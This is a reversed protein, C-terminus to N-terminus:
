SGSKRDAQEVLQKYEESYRDFFPSLETLMKEADTETPRAQVEKIIQRFGRPHDVVPCPRRPDKNAARGQRLRQFYPSQLIELFSHDRINHTTFHMFVCAEADGKSNIHFYNNPSMCGGLVDGDNFFMGLLIPYQRRLEEMRKNMYIRQAPTPMLEPVARTGLPVYMLYWGYLCGLDIMTQIFRDSLILDLNQSTTTCSFAAIGGLRKIERMNEVVRAYTGKGRRKDTEEELGEVSIALITNGAKVIRALDPKTLLLSNTYIQFLMDHHKEILKFIMEKNMFPEGGTIPVMNTGVAKAQELFRDIEEFTLDHTEDHGASYCGFCRLNCRSTPSIAITAPPGFGYKEYFAYRKDYGELLGKIVFNEFVRRKTERSLQQSFRQTAGVCGHNELVLEKIKDFGKAQWENRALPKLLDLIRIMNKPSLNLLLDSFGLMLNTPLKKVIFNTFSM